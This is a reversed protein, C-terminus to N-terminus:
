LSAKLLGVFEDIVEDSNGSLIVQKREAAKPARISITETFSKCDQAVDALSWVTTPKKGAAMIDKMTPIRPVNIDSTVSIVAPLSIELTEIGDAVVRQIRLGGAAKEIGCVANATTWGLLGGVLNGTQQVYMDGSGEGCLVLDINGLKEVGAALAKAVSLSDAGDLANDKIGFMEAPGRALIAKRMKSNDVMDGAATMAVLSGETESALRMGAEVALLDYQGVEYSATSFDLSQDRSVTISESNAICKYCAVIKM